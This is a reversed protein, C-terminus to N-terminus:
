RRVQIQIGPRRQHVTMYSLGAPGATLSRTCGRPLWVLEGSSAEVRTDVSTYTGGGAIVM